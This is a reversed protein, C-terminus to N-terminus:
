GGYDSKSKKEGEWHVMWVKVEMGLRLDDM